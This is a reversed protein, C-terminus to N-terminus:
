RSAACLALQGRLGTNEVFQDRLVFHPWRRGVVRRCVDDAVPRRPNGALMPTHANGARYRGSGILAWSTVCRSHVEMHSSATTGPLKTLITPQDLGFTKPM